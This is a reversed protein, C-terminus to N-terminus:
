IGPVISLRLTLLASVGRSWISVARNETKSEANVIALKLTWTKAGHGAAVAYPQSAGSHYLFCLSLLRLFVLFYMNDFGLEFLHNDGSSLVHNM